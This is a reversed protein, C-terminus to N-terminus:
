FLFTNNKDFMINIVIHNLTNFMIGVSLQFNQISIWLFNATMIVLSM